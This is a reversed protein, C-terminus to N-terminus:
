ASRTKRSPWGRRIRSANGNACSVRTLRRWRSSRVAAGRSSPTSPPEVYGRGRSQGVVDRECQTCPRFRVKGGWGGDFGPRHSDGSRSTSASSGIGLWGTTLRGLVPGAETAQDKASDADIAGSSGSENPPPVGPGVHPEGPPIGVRRVGGGSWTSAPLTRPRPPPDAPPRTETGM